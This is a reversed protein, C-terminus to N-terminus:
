FSLEAKETVSVSGSKFDQNSSISLSWRGMELRQEMEKIEFIKRM